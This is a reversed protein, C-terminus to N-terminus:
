SLLKGPLAFRDFHGPPLIFATLHQIRDAVVEIAMIFLREFEDNDNRIYVGYGPQRNAITPVVRTLELRQQPAREIIFEVIPMPGDVRIPIPPMTFAVDAAMLSTLQDIDARNWAAVFRNRLALEKESSPRPACTRVTNARARQLASNVAAVTTELVEATEAASFGLVDRLLLAARQIPSLRQIAVIFAIALDERQEAAAAPDTEPHYPQLWMPELGEDQNLWETAIERRAKGGLTDITRNTAIRYLWARFSSRGAYTGLSRWARFPTEQLLDDADDAAGTMRYCHRHLERRYPDVAREFARHDGTKAARVDDSILDDTM